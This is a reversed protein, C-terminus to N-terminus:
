RTGPAVVRVWRGASRASITADYMAEATVAPLVYRGVFAANLRVEVTMDSDPALDFFVDVRDDRVDQYTVPGDAAAGLIEWGDAVPVSL